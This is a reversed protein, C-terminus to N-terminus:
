PVSMNWDGGNLNLNEFFPCKIAYKRVYGHRVNDVVCQYLDFAQELRTTQIGFDPKKPFIVAESKIISVANYRHNIIPM